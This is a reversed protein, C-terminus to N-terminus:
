EQFKPSYKKKFSDCIEGSADTSGDDILMIVYTFKRYTKQNLLSQICLSLRKEMNYIPVIVTINELTAGGFEIMINILCIVIHIILLIKLFIAYHSFALLCCIKEFFM